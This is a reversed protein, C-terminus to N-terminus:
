KAVRRRTMLNEFVWYSIAVLLCVAIFQTVGEYFAGHGESAPMVAGIGPMVFLLLMWAMRTWQKHFLFGIFIGGGLAIPDIAARATSFLFSMM